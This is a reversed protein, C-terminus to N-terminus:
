RGISCHQDPKKSLVYENNKTRVSTGLTCMRFFLGPVPEDACGMYQITRIKYGNM